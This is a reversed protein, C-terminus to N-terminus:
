IDFRKRIHPLISKAIIKHCELSPHGDGGCEHLKTKDKSISLDFNELLFEITDYTSGNYRMPVFKEILYENNKIHPLYDDTWSILFCEIGDKQLEKFKNEIRTILTKTHIEFFDDPTYNNDVLWNLFPEYNDLELYLTQGPHGKVLKECLSFGNFGPHARIQYKENKYEFKFPSRYAQTTQFVCIKVESWPVNQTLLTNAGVQNRKVEDIFRLSEDDTGGNHRKIICNSISVMNGLLHPFRNEIRFIDADPPIPANEKTYENCTPVHWKTPCYSWLGQGWTFSCGAFIGYPIVM